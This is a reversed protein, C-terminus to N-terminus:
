MSKNAWFFVQSTKLFTTALMNYYCIILKNTLFHVLTPHNDEELLCKTWTQSLFDASEKFVVTEAVGETWRQKNERRRLSQM